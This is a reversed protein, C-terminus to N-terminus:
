LFSAYRHFVANKYGQPRSNVRCCFGDRNRYICCDVVYRFEGTCLQRFNEATRRIVSTKTYSSAFDFSVCKPVIDSFLEMKIRGAHTEGINIDFFVLPRQTTTQSMKYPRTTVCEIGARIRFKLGAKPGACLSCWRANLKASPQIKLM